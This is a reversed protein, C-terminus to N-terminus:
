GVATKGAIIFDAIGKATGIISENVDMTEHVRVALKVAELRLESAPRELVTPEPITYLTRQFADKFHDLDPEVKVTVTGTEAQAM